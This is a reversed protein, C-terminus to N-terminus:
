EIDYNSIIKTGSADYLGVLVASGNPEVKLGGYKAQEYTEAQGEEFLFSEAGIKVFHATRYYKIALENSALPTRSSQLREFSGINNSGKRLICYGRTPISDNLNWQRTMEYRLNMYDGQMLSRPDLPYLELLVLEGNNITHEKQLIMWNFVVLVALLNVIFIIRKYGKM